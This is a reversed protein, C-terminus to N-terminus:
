PLIRVSTINVKDVVILHRADSQYDFILLAGFSKQLGQPWGEEKGRQMAKRKFNTIYPMTQVEDFQQLTSWFQDDVESALMM